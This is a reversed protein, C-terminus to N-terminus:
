TVALSVWILSTLGCLSIPSLALGLSVMYSCILNLSVLTLPLTLGHLISYSWATGFSVLSAICDSTFGHSVLDSVPGHSFLAAPKAVTHLNFVFSKGFKGFVLWPGAM